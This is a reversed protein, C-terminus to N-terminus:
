EDRVALQNEVDVVDWAAAIELIGVRVFVAVVRDGALSCELM